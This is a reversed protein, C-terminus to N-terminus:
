AVQIKGFTGPHLKEGLRDFIVIKAAAENTNVGNTRLWLNGAAEGRAEGVLSVWPIPIESGLM